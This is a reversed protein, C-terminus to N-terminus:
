SRTTGGNAIWFDRVALANDYLWTPDIRWVGLEEITPLGPPLPVDSRVPYDGELYYPRYGQGGEEDGMMWRIMLKAANPHPARNALGVLSPYTVGVAPKVGRAFALSLNQDKVLRMKSAGVLGLPPRKQGKEGVAKATEDDGSTLVPNNALLRKIFEYGANKESTVLKEGFEQEYLAELEAARQVMSALFNLNEPSKLPDKMTLRGKWEPRTLDWLTDVGPGNPYAQPNYMLVKAGFHHYLLPEREESRILPVLESPVFNVITGRPLLENVIIPADGVFLVDANYVGAEHERRVKEIVEPAGLDFARVPIGYRETFTRGFENVRSSLSYVVVEGEQKAAAEIAAWDDAAPRYPGLQAKRLWADTDADAAANPVDISGGACGAQFAALLALTLALAKPRTNM